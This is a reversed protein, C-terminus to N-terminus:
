WFSESIKYITENAILFDWFHLEVAVCFFIEYIREWAVLKAIEICMTKM